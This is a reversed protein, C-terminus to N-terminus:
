EIIFIGLDKDGKGAWLKKVKSAIHGYISKATSRNDEFSESTSHKSSTYSISGDRSSVVIYAKDSGITNVHYEIIFHALGPDPVVTWLSDITIQKALERAGAMEYLADGSIFVNNGQALLNGKFGDLSLRTDGEDSKVKLKESEFMDKNELSVNELGAVFQSVVNHEALYLGEEFEIQTDYDYLVERTSRKEPNHKAAYANKEKQLSNVRQWHILNPFGDNKAEGKITNRKTIFDKLTYKFKGDIVELLCTFSIESADKLASFVPSGMVTIERLQKGVPCKITYAISKPSKAQEKLDYGLKVKQSAVYDMLAAMIEPADGKVEVVGSYSVVGNEDQPFLCEGLPGNANFAYHVTNQASLLVSFFVFSLLILKKM